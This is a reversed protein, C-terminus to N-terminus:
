KQDLLDLIEKEIIPADSVQFSERTKIVRGKKMLVSFPQAKKPNYLEVARSESDVVVPFTWKYRRVFPEVKARTEPQDMSIALVVFGRNKHKAYIKQLHHLENVCPKCWTAWFSMVLVKDKFDSLRVYRGKLDRLTFNTTKAVAEGVAFSVIFVAAAALLIRRM